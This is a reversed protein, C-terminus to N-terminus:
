GKVNVNGNVVERAPLGTPLDRCFVEDEGAVDNARVLSVIDPQAGAGEGNDFTYFYSVTGVLADISSDTIIGAIWAKNGEAVTMCTVDVHISVHNFVSQYYYSGSVTGNARKMASFNLIVPKGEAERHAAGVARATVGRDGGAVVAGDPDLTSGLSAPETPTEGGCAALLAVAPLMLSRRLNM